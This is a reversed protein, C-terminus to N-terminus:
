LGVLFHFYCVSIVGVEVHILGNRLTSKENSALFGRKRQSILVM